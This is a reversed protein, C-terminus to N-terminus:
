SEVKGTACNLVRLGSATSYINAMCAGLLNNHDTCGGDRTTSGHSRNAELPRFTALTGGGCGCPHYGISSSGQERLHTFSHHHVPRTKWCSPLRFPLQRWGVMRRRSYYKSLSCQKPRQPLPMMIGRECDCEVTYMVIGEYVTNLQQTLTQTFHLSENLFSSACM